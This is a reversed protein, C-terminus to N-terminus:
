PQKQTWKATKPHLIYRVSPKNNGLEPLSHVNDSGAAKLAKSVDSNPDDADGFFRAKAVCSKVCAPKDGAEQLHLCLTCKEVVKTETNFSRAGYPCAKMCLQCGICKAKDILVIGDPRKYSAGTPCTKVCPPDECEQCMTPLFYMQVDPYRGSPGVTLVKNWSLGLAVGNEQKCSVECTYCGICRDLDIALTKRM